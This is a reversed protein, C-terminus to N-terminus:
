KDDDGLPVARRITTKNEEPTEESQEDKFSEMLKALEPDLEEEGLNVKEEELDLGDYIVEDMVNLNDELVESNTLINKRLTEVRTKINIISDNAANLDSIRGSMFGVLANFDIKDVAKALFALSGQNDNLMDIINKVNIIIRRNAAVGQERIQLRKNGDIGKIETELRSAQQRIEAMARNAKAIDNDNKLQKAVDQKKKELGALESRLDAVKDKDRNIEAMKADNEKLKSQILGNFVDLKELVTRGRAISTLDDNVIEPVGKAKEKKNPAVSIENWSRAVAIAEDLLMLSGSSLIKDNCDKRWGKILEIIKEANAKAKASGVDMATLLQISLETLKKKSEEMLAVQEKSTFEFFQGKGKLSLMTDIADVSSAIYDRVPERM